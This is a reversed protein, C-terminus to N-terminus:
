VTDVHKTNGIRTNLQHFTIFLKNTVHECHDNKMCSSFMAIVSV